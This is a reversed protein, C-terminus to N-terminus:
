AALGNAFEYFRIEYRRNGAPALYYIGDNFVAFGRGYVKELLEREEAGGLPKMFLATTTSGTKTYYLTKGDPSELATHGGERTVQEATGGQAPIRWIEFRGTRNSGFLDM